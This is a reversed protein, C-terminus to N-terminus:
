DDDKKITGGAREFVRTIKPSVSKASLRFGPRRELLKKFQVLASDEDHFAVYASGLLLAAEAAVRADLFDVDVDALVRKVMAYDGKEWARRAKPLATEIRQSMERRKRSRIAAAPDETPLRNDRIRVHTIPIIISEGKKLSSRSLFNYGSLLKAKDPEGYFQQSVEALSEDQKAVHRAHFPIMVGQGSALTGDAPIGNFDALFPARRPDGLFRRSLSELTEGAVAQYQWATPIRLREDPKLRRDKWIKNAVRIFSSMQRDGYYEAALLELTDGPAVQHIVVSRDNRPPAAHADTAALGVGLAVVVLAGVSRNVAKM